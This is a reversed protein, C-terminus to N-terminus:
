KVGVEKEIAGQTTQNRGQSYILTGRQTHRMYLVTVCLRFWGGCFGILDPPYYNVRDEDKLPYSFTELM